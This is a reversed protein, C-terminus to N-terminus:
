FGGTGGQVNRNQMHTEAEGGDPYTSSRRGTWSSGRRRERLALGGIVVIIVAWMVIWMWTDM